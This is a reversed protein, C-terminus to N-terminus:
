GESRVLHEPNSDQDPYPRLRPIIPDRRRAAFVDRQRPSSRHNSDVRSWEVSSSRITSRKKRSVSPSGSQRRAGGPVRALSSGQPNSERGKREPDVSVLQGSKSITNTTYRDCMLSHFRLAGPEVGASYGRRIAVICPHAGPLAVRKWFAHVPNSDKCGQQIAGGHGEIRTPPSGPARGGRRGRSPTTPPSPSAISTTRPRTAKGALSPRVM